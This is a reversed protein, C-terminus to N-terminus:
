NAAVRRWHLTRRRPRGDVERVAHVLLEDGRLEAERTQEVGIWDARSSVEIRHVVQGERRHWRGAYGMYAPVAAATTMMSVSVHGNATYLLTGRPSPGLPGERHEGTDTVDHFSVLEWAGVLNDTM